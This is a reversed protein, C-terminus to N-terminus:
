SIFTEFPKQVMKQTQIKRHMGIRGQKPIAETSMVM